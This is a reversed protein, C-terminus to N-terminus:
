TLKKELADLRRPLIPDWDDPGFVSINPDYDPLQSLNTDEEISFTWDSDQELISTAVPDSREKEKGVPTESGKTSAKRDGINPGNTRISNTYKSVHGFHLLEKISKPTLPCNSAQNSPEKVIPEKECLVERKRKRKCQLCTPNDEAIMNIEQKNTVFCGSPSTDTQQGSSPAVPIHQKPSKRYELALMFQSSHIAVGMFLQRGSFCKPTCVFSLKFTGNREEKDWIIESPDDRLFTPHPNRKKKCSSMHYAAGDSFAFWIVILRDPIPTPEVVLLPNASTCPLYFVQCPLTSYPYKTLSIIFRTPQTTQIGSNGSPRVTFECGNEVLVYHYNEVAMKITYRLAV